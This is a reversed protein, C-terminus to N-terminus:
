GRGRRPRSALAELWGALPPLVADWAYREVVRARGAAALGAAVAPQALLGLVADAIERDSTAARLHTGPEVEIGELATPSGVVPVGAALAEVVKFKTGSGSVLPYCAVDADALFPRVDDVRGTVVTRVGDHQASLDPPPGDGVVTLRADPHSARVLPMVRRLLRRAGDANPAYRLHGVFVIRPPGERRRPAFAFYDPDVGNEVAIVRDRPLGYASVFRDRDSASVAVVGDFAGLNTREFRAARRAEQGQAWRAVGRAAAALSRMRDAEVDFSCLVRRTEGGDGALLAIPNTQPSVFLFDPSSRLAQRVAPLVGFRARTELIEADLHFRRGAVPLRARRLRRALRDVLKHGLPERTRLAAPVSAPTHVAAVAGRLVDARGAEPPAPDELAIFELPGRQALFRVLHLDRIEGGSHGPFLPLRPACFLSRM